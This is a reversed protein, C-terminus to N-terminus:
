TKSEPLSIFSNAGVKTTRAHFGSLVFVTRLLPWALAIVLTLLLTYGLDPVHILLTPLTGGAFIPARILLALLLAAWIFNLVLPPLLHWGRRLLGVPRSAVKRHWRRILVSTRLMELLQLAIVIWVFMLISERVDSAHVPPLIPQGILRDTVGVTIGAIPAPNLGNNGNMLLAVGWQTNPVLVMDAHFNALDGGHSVTKMGKINAVFWGMAYFHDEEGTPVAAKHLLAMGAPSLISVNTFQGGNLHAILYHAMDEASVSLFGAPLTGRPFPMEYRIPWGFWYRHGTARGHQSAELPSTYSNLMKLPAFIKEQIYEEYSRGSLTQVLLGLMNYNANAYQFQEGVPATLPLMRLDRAARELADDSTDDSMAQTTGDITPIGSTMNLLNRVTIKQSVGPNNGVEFWPLYHQVPTDLEIKGAEVLQMIALATFSKSASGIVFPTQPTVAHGLTDAKGFGKLHVIQDGHVIALSLGPLHTASMQEEIYHDIADFDAQTASQASAVPASWAILLAMLLFMLLFPLARPQVLDRM